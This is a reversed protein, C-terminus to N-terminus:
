LVNEHNQNNVTSHLTDAPRQQKYANRPFFAGACRGRWFGCAGAWEQHMLEHILECRAEHMLECRAESSASPRETAIAHRTRARQPRSRTQTAASLSPAARARRARCCRRASWSATPSPRSRLRSAMLVSLRSPQTRGRAHKTGGMLSGTSLSCYDSHGRAM